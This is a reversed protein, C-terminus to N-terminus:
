MSWEKGDLIAQCVIPLAEWTDEASVELGSDRLYYLQKRMHLKEEISSVIANLLVPNLDRNHRLLDQVEKMITDDTM